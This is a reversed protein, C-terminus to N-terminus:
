CSHHHSEWVTKLRQDPFDPYSQCQGGQTSSYGSSNELDIVSSSMRNSVNNFEFNYSFSEASANGDSCPSGPLGGAKLSRDGTNSKERLPVM